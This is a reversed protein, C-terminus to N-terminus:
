ESLKSTFSLKFSVATGGGAPINIPVGWSLCTGQYVKEGCNEGVSVTEVPYRFLKSKVQSSYHVSYNWYEDILTIKKAECVGCSALNNQEPKLNDIKIYRQKDYGSLLNINSEMLLMFEIDYDDSENMVGITVDLGTSSFDYIKELRVPINVNGAKIISTRKLKVSEKEVNSIEYTESSSPCLEKYRQLRVDDLSTDLPVIHEMFINRNYRDYAFSDFAGDQIHLNATCHLQDKMQLHYAEKRRALTNVININAPKYDLEVLSGGQKQDIFSSYVSNSFSLEEVGDLNFDLMKIEPKTKLELDLTKEAEIINEWLGHRLHNLYVGGFMGHWYACNCQSKYLHETIHNVADKSLKKRSSSFKESLCITRKHTHNSEPYKVLFNDWFGGKVFKVLDKVEESHEVHKKLKEYDTISDAPMAWELMEAYSATPLYILGESKLNDYSESLTTSKIIDQSSEIAAFFRDLWKEEIVSKFTQPWVGFKEGDDGYTICFPKTSHNALEAMYEIAKNPEQYPIRYRLGKDSPFVSVRKGQRETYYSGTLPAKKDLGASFFHEDDLIVYEVGAQSLLVPLSPEWIREAVWMGRPKIGTISFWKDQMMKIQGLADENRLVAIIPEYYAGGIIEIQGKKVLRVIQDMHKPQKDILWDLLPGSIHLSIKIKPHDELINIIHKYCKDYAWDMVHGFNGVPQHNHIVLNLNIKSM